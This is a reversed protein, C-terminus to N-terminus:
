VTSASDRDPIPRANYDFFRKLRLFRKEYLNYSLWAAAVSLSVTLLGSLVVILGKNDVLHRLSGRLLPLLAPLATLHLIYLGYSYKGFFRLLRVSFVRQALSPALSWLLLGASALALLTYHLSFFLSWTRPEVAPGPVYAFVIPELGLYSAAALFLWRGSRLVTDHAGGRLLLSLSGGILLSDARCLTNTNIQQYSVHWAFLTFRLLISALSVVACTWLLRRRDRILFVALPWALYFQEEVALSWFHTITIGPPNFLYVPEAILSTNQLYLALSWLVGHWAIGLWPTLVLFVLLIGYYLPFIRLARRAYFKRFFHQDGLSDFLIGTILFGSLVFFLDVGAAGFTLMRQIAHVLPNSAASGPFLHSAMVALIALGRLGDLSPIHRSYPGAEGTTSPSRSPTM